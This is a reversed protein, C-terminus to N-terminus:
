NEKFFYSILQSLVLIECNLVCFYFNCGYNTHMEPATSGEDTPRGCGFVTNMNQTGYIIGLFYIDGPIYDERIVLWLKSVVICNKQVYKKNTNQKVNFIYIGM